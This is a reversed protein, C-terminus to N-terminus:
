TFKVSRRVIKLPRYLIGKIRVPIHFHFKNGLNDGTPANMLYGSCFGWFYTLGNLVNNRLTVPQHICVTDPAYFLTDPSPRLTQANLNNLQSLVLLVVVLLYKKM